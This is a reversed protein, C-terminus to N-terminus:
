ALALEKTGDQVNVDTLTSTKMFFSHARPTFIYIGSSKTWGRGSTDLYTLSMREAVGVAVEENRQEISASSARESM